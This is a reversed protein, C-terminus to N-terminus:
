TNNSIRSEIVALINNVNVEEENITKFKKLLSILERISKATTLELRKQDIVGYVIFEDEDIDVEYMLRNAELTLWGTFQPNTNIRLSKELVAARFADDFDDIDEFVEVSMRIYDDEVKIRINLGSCSCKIIVDDDRVDISSFELSKFYWGKLTKVMQEAKENVSAM